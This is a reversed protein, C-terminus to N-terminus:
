VRKNLLKAQLKAFVEEVSIEELRPREIVIHGAGVPGWRKATKGPLDNRFLAVVPTGMAAALHMPGSDGTILLRCRKLVCALETLSTKNVLDLADLNDANREIGRGDPTKGVFIVKKGLERSIRGALEMFREVPWQKVPDSTFPHIAIAEEGIELGCKGPLPISIEGSAGPVGREERRAILGALELNYEVEHRLGLYKEDKIKHTLLFGWKRDYGVRVPIGACFAAWHADKTPNLVICADFRKGRMAGRFSKDWVEVDDVCDLAKALGSVEPSVALTINARRYEERLVRLAPINLLFEGFRDSRVVLIRNIEKEPM